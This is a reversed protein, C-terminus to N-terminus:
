LSEQYTAVQGKLWTHLLTLQASPKSGAPWVIYYRSTHAPEIDTLRVLEGRQILAHAISRRTLAVGHGLRVAELM